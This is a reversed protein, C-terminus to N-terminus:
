RKARRATVVLVPSGPGIPEGAWGGAVSPSDFGAAQLDAEIQDRTRFALTNTCVLHEGTDEFVAHASYTVAEHDVDIVQAWRTLPGHETSQTRRTREETWGRWAGPSPNRGDFAVVGGPDLVDHIHCLAEHWAAGLIHGAVNGSMIVLDSRLGPLASADGDIWTVDGDSARARAYGLMAPSPDIGMVARDPATLALTLLGTGCGLDIITRAGLKATLTRYFAHDPGARNDEDYLAVLRPDSFACYSRRGQVV